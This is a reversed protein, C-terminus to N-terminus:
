FQDIRVDAYFFQIIEKYNKGQSAMKNAANQSMGVGHGYGGGLIDYGSIIGNYSHERLSFYASPLINMQFLEELDNRWYIDYNGLFKRIEYEGSITLDGEEGHITLKNVVGGKLREDVSLSKIEGVKAKAKYYDNISELSFTAKWRYLPFSIDYDYLNRTSILKYFEDNSTLDREEQKSSIAQSKIYGYKEPEENWVSVDGGYGCSTSYYYAEIVKDEYKIIEGKTEDVAKDTIESRKANNYVQYKVSDDVHAGYKKYEDKNLQIYAYSRACVAQAKLAEIGYNSPMESQVVYKLYEEMDIENIIYLGQEDKDIELSGKYSPVGYGRNISEISIEGDNEVSFRIRGKSLYSSDKDIEIIENAPINKIVTGDTMSEIIVDQTGVLRINKHYIDNYGSDSILVRINEAKTKEKIVIGYVFGDAVILELNEEGIGVEFLGSKSFNESINYIRCDKSYPLKGYGMVEIYEDDLALIKGTIKDKKLTISEMLRKNMTIDALTNSIEEANIDYDFYRFIGDIYVSMLGNKCEKIWVNNYQVQESEVSIVAIIEKDLSLVRVVTDIYADLAIGEFGYYGNDTYATWDAMNDVNAPTGIVRIDECIINKNYKQILYDYIKYWANIGIKSQNRRVISENGPIEELNVELKTLIKKLDKYTFALNGSKKDMFGQENLLEIYKDYWNDEKDTRDSKKVAEIDGNFAVMMKAVKDMTIMNESESTNIQNSVFLLMTCSIVAVVLLIISWFIKRKKM